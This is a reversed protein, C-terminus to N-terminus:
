KLLEAIREGIIKSDRRITGLIGGPTYNDFGIFYLGDYDGEGICGLPADYKDLIPEANDLLESMMARYGTCIIISDFAAQSGDKFVVGDTVFHNIDPLIKIKRSKILPITGLDIVPTKGELRLQKAPPMKPTPIGYKDLKGVVLRRIITGIGDGLWDPLKALKLATLQTPRGFVDRPVINVASRVSICVKVGAEYLDLAIEAGTNGMGIILVKQGLYPKPNRYDRSHIISGQFNEEDAFHPRNPVRNVGTALIIHEGIYSNGQETDLEWRGDARREIWIVEQGFHPNIHFHEAYEEYYDVLQQRTVYQPYDEPFEMFPLDSLAKVTHLCLRDYHNRWSNGVHESQEIIEFSINRTRLQGAVALGAPGAGVIIVPAEHHSM